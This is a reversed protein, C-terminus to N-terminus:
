SDAIETALTLLTALTKSEVEKTEKPKGGAAYYVAVEELRGAKGAELRLKANNQWADGEIIEQFFDKVPKTIKNPTGARRGARPHRPKGKEFTHASVM